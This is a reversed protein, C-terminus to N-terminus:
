QRDSLVHVHKPYYSLIVYIIYICRLLYVITFALQFRIVVRFLRPLVTVMTWSDKCVYMYNCVQTYVYM